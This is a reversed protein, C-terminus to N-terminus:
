LSLPAKYIQDNSYFSRRIRTFYFFYIAQLIGESQRIVIYITPLTHFISILQAIVSSPQNIDILVKPLMFKRKQRYFIHEVNVLQSSEFTSFHWQRERTPSIHEKM